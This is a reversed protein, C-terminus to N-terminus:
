ARYFIKKRTVKSALIKEMEWEEEGDEIQIPPPPENVQGPLPNTAAKRLLQTYFVPWIKMSEPLKVKWSHGCKKIIEYSGAMQHNLKKSPRQTKWNKTLVWIMDRVQLTDVRRHPNIDQIKKNQAKKIFNKAVKWSNYMYKALKVAEERNLKEKPITPPPTNWNFSTRAPYGNLVKFLSLRISSHPVM